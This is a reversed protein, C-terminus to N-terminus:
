AELLGQSHARALLPEISAIPLGTRSEFDEPAFGEILRLANLMFEFPLDEAEVRQRELGALAALNTHSEMAEMYQRPQRVIATREIRGQAAETLKGHAGAGIGVYDGFLWYNLNHLCRRGERAYGSIEYQRFGAASLRAQSSRQMEWCADEDPLPPPKHFFVTGPELTLQYHSIHTPELAVAADIDAEAQAVSQGPLGYMLDINFNDIGAAALEEVARHIDGVSHIRGLASLHGANFSQGGLSVRTIGAGRYEAFRGHEITGPNAELTVEAHTAMRLLRGAGQLIQAIAQPTFLSPTGGGFFVSIVERGGTAASQRELDRLLANVYRQEPLVGERAHSNFDCYPCKRVCWPLHVYLALPPPKLLNM